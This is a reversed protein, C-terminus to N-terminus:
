ELRCAMIRLRLAVERASGSRVVTTVEVPDAGLRAARVVYRGPPLARFAFGGLSDTAVRAESRGSLRILVHSMGTGWRADLATGVLAGSDAPIAAIQPTRPAPGTSNQLSPYCSEVPILVRPERVRSACAATSGLAIASVTLRIISMRALRM